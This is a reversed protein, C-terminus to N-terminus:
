FNWPRAKMWAAYKRADRRDSVWMNGNLPRLTGDPHLANITVRQRNGEKHLVAVAESKDM